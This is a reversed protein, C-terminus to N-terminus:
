RSRLAAESLPVRRAERGQADYCSCTRDGSDQPPTGSAAFGEARCFDACVLSDSRPRFGNPTLLRVLVVAALVVTTGISIAVHATNLGPRSEQHKGVIYAVSLLGLWLGASGLIFISGLLTDAVPPWPDDGLVFLWLAGASAALMLTAAIISVLLTPVAFLLVYIHRRRL